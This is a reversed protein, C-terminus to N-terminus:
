FSPIVFYLLSLVSPLLPLAVHFFSLSFFLSVSFSLFLFPTLEPFKWSTATATGSAMTALCTVFRNVSRALCNPAYPSQTTKFFKNRNHFFSWGNQRHDADLPPVIRIFLWDSYLLNYFPKRWYRNRRFETAMSFDKMPLLYNILSSGFRLLILM